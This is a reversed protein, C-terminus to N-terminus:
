IPPSSVSIIKTVLFFISRSSCCARAQLKFKLAPGSPRDLPGAGCMSTASSNACLGAVVFDFQGDGLLRYQRQQRDAPDYRGRHGSKCRIVDQELVSLADVTLAIVTFEPNHFM